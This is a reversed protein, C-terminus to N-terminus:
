RPYVAVESAKVSAWVDAGPALGLEAFSTATVDATLAVEGALDCRVVPGHPTATVLRLPWVNRPSGAPRQLYLAVSEPRVAVFVSGRADAAVAVVGGGDLEVTTGAGTGALLVLGVLRAVYDTRPRRAVEAPTGAQVVRGEEIVLIRDALAMADVPDHTVLVASGAYDALHRHLEARVALRTRADLASLPEDLLLVRPDGVLARALAARQAQGGSLQGPRRAGLDALGVRELWRGAVARAEARGAGRTRLGFAVNETVTLHPFLLHDQFVVGVSRQHAPLPDWARGDVRVYGDGPRLLGALVRLVTSKGAGNPGLVALVEGDAVAVDVDVSVGGRDVVVRADLTM